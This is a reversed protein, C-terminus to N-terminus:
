ERSSNLASKEKTHIERIGRNQSRAFIEPDNGDTTTKGRFNSIFYARQANQLENDTKEVYYQKGLVNACDNRQIM